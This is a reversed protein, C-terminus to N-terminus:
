SQKKQLFVQLFILYGKLPSVKAAPKEYRQVSATLLIVVHRPSALVLLVLVLFALVELVLASKKMWLAVSHITVALM